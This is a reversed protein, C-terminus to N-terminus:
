SDELDYEYSAVTEILNIEIQKNKQSKKRERLEAAVVVFVKSPTTFEQCYLRDNEQGKFFKMATVGKARDNIEEKDYLETNRLGNLILEVIHRFKKEHRSDQTVYALIAEANEADVAVCRRGNASEQFIVAKRKM